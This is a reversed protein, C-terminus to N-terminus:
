EPTAQLVTPEWIRTRDTGASLLRQGGPSFHLTLAPKLPGRLEQLCRGSPLEWLKITLDVSASALIPRTPHWVLATIAADHARFEAQVQLTRADHIRVTKHDGAGAFRRGDPEAALGNVIATSSETLLRKGSAADWLVLWEESEPRGRAACATVAGVVRSRDLWAADNVVLIRDRHDLRPLQGGSVTDFQGSCVGGPVFTLLRDGLPSLRVLSVAHEVALSKTVRVEGAAQRLIDVRSGLNGSQAAAAVQGDASTNLLWFGTQDARWAAAGDGGESSFL